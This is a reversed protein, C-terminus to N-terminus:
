THTEIVPWGHACVCFWLSIYIVKWKRQKAVDVNDDWNKEPIVKKKM